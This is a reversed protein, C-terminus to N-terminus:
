RQMKPMAAMVQSLSVTTKIITMALMELFVAMFLFRQADTTMKFPVVLSGVSEARGERSM